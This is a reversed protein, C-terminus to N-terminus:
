EFHSCGRQKSRCNSATCRLFETNESELISVTISDPVVGSSIEKTYGYMNWFNLIENRDTLIVEKRKPQGYTVLQEALSPIRSQLVLAECNGAEFHSCWRDKM